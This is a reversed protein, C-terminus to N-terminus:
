FVSYFRKLEPYFDTVLLMAGTLLLGILLPLIWWTSTGRLLRGIPSPRDM